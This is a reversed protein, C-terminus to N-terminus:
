HPLPFRLRKGMTELLVELTLYCVTKLSPDDDYFFWERDKCVIIRESIKGDWENFTLTILRLPEPSIQRLNRELLQAFEGRRFLYTGVRQGTLLREAEERNVDHWAQEIVSFGESQVIELAAIADHPRTKHKPYFALRNLTHITDALRRMAEPQLDGCYFGKEEQAEEVELAAAGKEDWKLLVPKWQKPSDNIEFALEGTTCNIYVNLTKKALERLQKENM